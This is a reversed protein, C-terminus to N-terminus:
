AYQQLREVLLPALERQLTETGHRQLGVWREALKSITKTKPFWKRRQPRPYCSKNNIHHSMVWNDFEPDYGLVARAYREYQPGLQIRIETFLSEPVSERAVENFLSDYDVHRHTLGGEGNPIFHSRKAFTHKEMLYLAHNKVSQKAYNLAYLTGEGTEECGWLSLMGAELLDIVIDDANFLSDYVSFYRLSTMGGHYLSWCYRELEKYIKRLEASTFRSLHFKGRLEKVQARDEDSLHQQILAVDRPSAGWGEPYGSVVGRWLTGWYYSQSAWRRWSRLGKVTEPHLDELAEQFGQPDLVRATFRVAINVAQDLEEEPVTRFNNVFSYVLRSESDLSTNSM